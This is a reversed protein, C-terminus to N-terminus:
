PLIGQKYNYEVVLRSMSVATTTGSAHIVQFNLQDGPHLTGTTGLTASVPLYFRSWRSDLMLWGAQTTLTLPDTGSYVGSQVDLTVGMYTSTLATSTLGNRPAVQVNVCFATTTDGITNANGVAYLKLNNYYNNPVIWTFRGTCATNTTFVASTQSLVQALYPSLSGPSPTTVPGTVGDTAKLDTPKINDRTLHDDLIYVPTPLPTLTPTLTPTNTPTSASATGIALALLLFILSTLKKM